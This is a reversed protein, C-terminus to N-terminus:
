ISNNENRLFHLPSLLGLEWLLYSNFHTFILLYTTKRFAFSMRGHEVFVKGLKNRWILKKAAVDMTRLKKNVFTACYMGSGVRVWRYNESWGRSSTTEWSWGKYALRPPPSPTSSPQMSRIWMRRPTFLPLSVSSVRFTFCMKKILFYFEANSMWIFAREWHESSSLQLWPLLKKCSNWLQQLLVTFIVASSWVTFYKLTTLVVKEESYVALSLLWCQLPQEWLSICNLPRLITKWM